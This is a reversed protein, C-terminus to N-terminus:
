KEREKKEIRYEYETGGGASLFQIILEDKLIRIWAFGPSSSAYLTDSGAGVPRPNSGTGSILYFIGSASKILEQDHDHGSMYLDIRYKRLVPELVKLMYKNIGYYGSSFVPHHGYVIKWEARSKRLEENLWQLQKISDSRQYLISTTDLAFFQAQVSGDIKVSFTYYGAPMKWRSSKGTYQVQAYPNGMHDHNGLVAYFPVQLSPYSYMREFKTDWQPDDVSDVGEWYFNDGLLRVFEIPGEVAKRSMAGAVSRQGRGGWGQDGLVIFRVSDGAAPASESAPGASPSLLLVILLIIKLSFSVNMKFRSGKGRLPQFPKEM